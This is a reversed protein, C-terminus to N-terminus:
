KNKLLDMEKKLDEIEKQQEKMGEILVAVINGYSILKYGYQNTSVVQPLYPEVDQAILGIRERDDNNIRRYKIGNLKTIIDMSSTIEIIDKKMRRDSFATIDGEAYISGSCYLDGFSASEVYLQLFSGSDDSRMRLFGNGAGASIEVGVGRYNDGSGSIVSGSYFLFGPSGDLFGEYGVSRLMASAGGSLEIGTRLTKGIFLSGEVLNDDQAIVLNSGTVTSYGSYSGAQGANVLVTGVEGIRNGNGSIYVPFISISENRKVLPTPITIRMESISDGIDVYPKVQINAIYYTGYKFAFCLSGTGNHQATLKESRREFSSAQATVFAFPYGLTDLRNFAPTGGSATIYLDFPAPTQMASEVIPNSVPECYLNYTVEYTVDKTFYLKQSHAYKYYKLSDPQQVKISNSLVDDNYTLTIAM